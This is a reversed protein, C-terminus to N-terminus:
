QCSLSMSGSERGCFTDGARIVRGMLSPMEGLGECTQQLLERVPAHILREVGNIAITEMGEKLVSPLRQALAPSLLVIRGNRMVLEVDSWSLDGLTDAPAAGRDQVAILDAVGGAQLSGQGSKLRLLRAARATVLEYLLADPVGMAARVMRLQDLLDCPATLPSDTGLALNPFERVQELSLTRGLTNLNSVPCWVLGAGSRNLRDCQAPTLGVGHILVLREDLPIMSELLGFESEAVQDTGEAVHIFFPWDRPTSGFQEILKDADVVSHAWGYEFPVHVPFDSQFVHELYRNHHSVTTVGCLLNRIGGWRCRLEKAVSLHKGIPPQDPRYIDAAWERWNGYPGAGLQPFLGFDLHDHANILGPLVLYDSLDLDSSGGETSVSPLAEAWDMDMRISEIREGRITLTRHKASFPSRAVRAGTMRIVASLAANTPREFAPLAQCTM